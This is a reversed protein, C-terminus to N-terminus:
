PCLKGAGKLALILSCIAILPTAGRGCIAGGPTDQAAKWTKASRWVDIGYKEILPGTASWDTDYRSVDQTPTDPGGCHAWDGCECDWWSRRNSGDADCGVCLRPRCGLAEAVQVHLPKDRTGTM